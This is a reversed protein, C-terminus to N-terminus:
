YIDELVPIMLTFFFIGKPDQDKEVLTELGM